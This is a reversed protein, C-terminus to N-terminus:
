RVRETRETLHARVADAAENASRVTDAVGVGRYANGAVVIGPPLAGEIAAVRELHGVEYQPMARPWRVVASAMPLEPLPLAAALHRCVAEVIEGEAADLIDEAGVGGVFCRLVARTGFAADPWKRSLFTAATMPAKGAPVVFGTAAPLADATGEPYVLLVVGTSAYPISGLARAAEPALEGLLDAGVFAPTSVVVADASHERDGARVVSGSGEPEISTAAATALVREAGIAGVLAAPLRGVGGAPRLFIPGADRALKGAAKAGRILSGHDLEWSALEPFTARAGLRDIDGAFLGGLLPGVLVDAAEDGLRRRLLSGLSEEDEPPHPKRVLDSLARLRGSRSLGAWRALDDTDAPVGLATPPMELLGRDTWVFAGSAGPALLELGLERCLDVAWPKRAVFSDPGADLELGGVEATALKGGPAPGAELVTLQLSPDRELLRYAAALGALGGGVVVVRASM